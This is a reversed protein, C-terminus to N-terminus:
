KHKRWAYAVLALLGTVLLALTSPEPVPVVQFGNVVGYFAGTQTEPDFANGSVTVTISGNTATLGTYLQYNAGLTWETQAATNVVNKVDGGVDFTTRQIGTDSYLYLDYLGGSTLGDISFTFVGTVDASQTFAYDLMLSPAIVSDAAGDYVWSNILTVSATTVGGLSDVLAGSTYSAFPTVNAAPTVGNWTTGADPAVATGVYVGSGGNTSGFDVNISAATATSGILSMAACFVEICLLKHNM